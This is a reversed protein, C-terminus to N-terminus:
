HVPGKAKGKPRGKAKLKPAAKAKGKPRGKPKPKPDVVAPVTGGDNRKKDEEARHNDRIQKNRGDIEKVPVAVSGAAM